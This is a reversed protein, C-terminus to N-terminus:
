MARQKIYEIIDPDYRLWETAGDFGTLEASSFKMHCEREIDLAKRGHMSIAMSIEFEIPTAKRLQQMRQDIKNSVGVKILSRDTSELAYIFGNECSRFGYKACSQCRSGKIVGNYGICFDGHEQCLGIIRSSTGCFDGDWSVFSYNNSELKKSVRERLKPERANSADTLKSYRCKSCNSKAGLYSSVSRDFVGHEPCEIIARTNAGSYEGDFGVFRHGNGAACFSLEIEAVSKPKRVRSSIKEFSCKQCGVKRSEIADSACMWNGHEKCEIEVMCSKQGEIRSVGVFRYSTPGILRKAKIAYQELTWSPKRSCGCPVSGKRLAGALCCMSGEPWLEVDRSCISCGLWYRRDKNPKKPVSGLVTITGGRPTPFKQGIFTDSDQM